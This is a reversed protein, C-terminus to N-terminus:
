ECLQNYNIHYETYLIMRRPHEGDAILPSKGLAENAGIVASHRKQSIMRCENTSRSAWGLWYCGLLESSDEFPCDDLFRRLRSSLASLRRVSSMRGTEKNQTPGSFILTRPSYTTAIQHLDLMLSTIAQGVWTTTSVSSQLLFSSVRSKARVPTDSLMLFTSPINCESRSRSRVIGLYEIYLKSCGTSRVIFALQIGAEPTM